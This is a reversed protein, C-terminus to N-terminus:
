GASPLMPGAANTSFFPRRACCRATVNSVSPQSCPEAQAAPPLLIEIPKRVPRRRGTFDLDTSPSFPDHRGKPLELASGASSPRPSHPRHALDPLASQSAAAPQPPPMRLARCSPM